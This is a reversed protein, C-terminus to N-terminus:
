CISINYWHLNFYQKWAIFSFLSFCTSSLKISHYNNIPSSIILCAYFIAEYNQSCKLYKINTKSCCANGQKLVFAVKMCVMIKHTNIWYLISKEEWYCRANAMCLFPLLYNNSWNFQICLCRQSSFALLRYKRSSSWVGLNMM